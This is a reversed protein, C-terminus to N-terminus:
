TCVTEDAAGPALQLGRGVCRRDSSVARRDSVPTAAEDLHVAADHRTLAVRRMEFPDGAVRGLAMQELLLEAVLGGVVPQGPKGVAGPEEVAVVLGEGPSPSVLPPNGDHQEVDVVELEDVVAEPM